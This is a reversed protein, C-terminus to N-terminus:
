PSTEFDEHSNSRYHCIIVPLKSSYVTYNMGGHCHQQRIDIVEQEVGSSGSHETTIDSICM